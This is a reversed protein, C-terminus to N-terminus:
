DCFAHNQACGPTEATLDIWASTQEISGARLQPAPLRQVEGPMQLMAVRGDEERLATWQQGIVKYGNRVLLSLEPEINFHSLILMGWGDRVISMAPALSLGKVRLLQALPWIVADQVVAGPEISPHPLIWSHFQGKLLNMETLGWRDDILWFREGEEYLEMSS